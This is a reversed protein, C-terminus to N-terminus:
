NDIKSLNFFNQDQTKVELTKTIIMTKRQILFCILPAAFYIYVMELITLLLFVYKWDFFSTDTYPGYVFILPGLRNQWIREDLIVFNRNKNCVPKHITLHLKKNLLISVGQANSEM